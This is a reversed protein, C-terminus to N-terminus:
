VNSNSCRGDSTIWLWMGITKTDEQSANAEVERWSIISFPVGVFSETKLVDVKLVDAKWFKRTKLVNPKM